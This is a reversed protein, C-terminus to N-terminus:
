EEYGFFYYRRLYEGIINWGAASDSRLRNERMYRKLMKITEAARKDRRPIIIQITEQDKVPRKSM